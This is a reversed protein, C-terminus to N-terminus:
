EYICLTFVYPWPLQHRRIQGWITDTMINLTTTMYIKRRTPGTSYTQRREYGVHMLFAQIILGMVINYSESSINKHLKALVIYPQFSVLKDRHLTFNKLSIVYYYDPMPLLIFLIITFLTNRYIINQLCGYGILRQVGNQLWGRNIEALVHAKTLSNGLQKWIMIITM